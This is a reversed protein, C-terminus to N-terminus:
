DSLETHLCYSQYPLLIESLCVHDSREGDASLGLYRGAEKYIPIAVLDLINLSKIQIQFNKLSFSKM